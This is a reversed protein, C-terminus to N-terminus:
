RLSYCKKREYINKKEHDKKQNNNAREGNIAKDVKFAYVSTQANNNLSLKKLRKGTTVNSM